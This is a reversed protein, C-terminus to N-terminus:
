LFLTFKFLSSLWMLSLDCHLSREATTPTILIYSKVSFDWNAQARCMVTFATVVKLLIELEKLSKKESFKCCVM